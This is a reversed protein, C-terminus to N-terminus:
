KKQLESENIEIFLGDDDISVPNLHINQLIALYVFLLNNLEFLM